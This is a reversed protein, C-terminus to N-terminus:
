VLYRMSPQAFLSDGVARLREEFHPKLLQVEEHVDMWVFSWLARQCGEAKTRVRNSLVAVMRDRLPAKNMVRDYDHVMTHPACRALFLALFRLAKVFLARPTRRPPLTVIRPKRYLEIIHQRPEGSM